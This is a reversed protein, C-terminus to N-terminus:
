SENIVNGNRTVISDSTGWANSSGSQHGDSGTPTASAEQGVIIFWKGVMISSNLPAKVINWASLARNHDKKINMYYRSRWGNFALRNTGSDLPWYNDINDKGGFGLDKVHDGDQNAAGLDHGLSYLVSNLNTQTDRTKGHKPTNKWVTGVTPRNTANVGFTYANHADLNVVQQGWPTLTIANGTVGDIVNINQYESEPKYWIIPIPDNLTGTHYRVNGSHTNLVDTPISIAPMKSGLVEAVVNDNARVAANVYQRIVSMHEDVLFGIKVQQKMHREIRNKILKSAYGNGIKKNKLYERRSQRIARTNTVKANEDNIQKTLRRVARRLINVEGTISGARRLEQHIEEVDTWSSCIGVKIQKDVIRYKITHREKNVDVPSAFADFFKTMNKEVRNTNEHTDEELTEHQPNSQELATNNVNSQPQDDDTSSNKLSKIDTEQHDSAETDDKKEQIPQEKQSTQNHVIEQLQSVQNNKPRHLSANQFSRHKSVYLNTNAIQQMKKQTVAEPRNDAFQFTSKGNNQAESNRNSVSKSKNELTEHAYTAM